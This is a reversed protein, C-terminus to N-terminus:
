DGPSCLCAAWPAIAPGASVVNACHPFLVPHLLTALDSRDRVPRAFDVRVWPGMADGGPDVVFGYRDVRVPRPVGRCPVGLAGLARRLAEETEARHHGALDLLLERELEQLPDPDAVIFDEVEVDHTTHGRQVQVRDVEIAYLSVGSGVDFLDAVPNHEAFEHRALDAEADSLRHVWGGVRVRGLSPARDVPPRDEVTLLAAVRRRSDVAGLARAVDTGVRALVMPRGACDTAHSAPLPQPWGAVRLSGALRGTALTRAVEAQSPAM